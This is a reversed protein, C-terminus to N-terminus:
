TIVQLEDRAPIYECLLLIRNAPHGASCLVTKHMELKISNLQFGYFYWLFMNFENEKLKIQQMLKICRQFTQVSLICFGHCAADYMNGKTEKSPKTKEGRMRACHFGSLSSLYFLCKVEVARNLENFDCFHWLLLLLSFIIHLLFIFYFLACLANLMAKSIRVAGFGM